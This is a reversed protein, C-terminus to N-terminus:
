SAKNFNKSYIVTIKKRELQAEGPPPPPEDLVDESVEKFGVVAESMVKDEAYAFERTALIDLERPFEDEPLNWLVTVFLLVTSLTESEFISSSTSSILFDIWSM